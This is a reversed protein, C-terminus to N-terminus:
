ENDPDPLLGDLLSLQQGGGCGHCYNYYWCEYPETCQPGPEM